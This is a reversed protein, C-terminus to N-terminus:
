ADMYRYYNGKEIEEKVVDPVFFRISKKNKIRERIRTSSIDLLPADIIKINAKLENNIEFGPRKFILISHNRVLLENNKWKKINKFSDSGMIISFSYAPYKEKLYALTDITYSPKPLNFEISSGKMKTEGEIAIQLLHLRHYENLLEKQPKLPNQPSLVFWLQDVLNSSTIYNAIILHGVHVPNFSGFFLGINM